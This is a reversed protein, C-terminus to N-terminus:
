RLVHSAWGDRDDYLAEDAFVVPLYADDALRRSLSDLSLPMLEGHPSVETLGPLQAANLLDEDEVYLGTVEPEEANDGLLKLARLADEDVSGCDLTLLVRQRSDSAM